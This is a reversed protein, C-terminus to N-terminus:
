VEEEEAIEFDVPVRLGNRATTPVYLPLTSGDPYEVFSELTTSTGDLAFEIARYSGAPLARSSVLTESEGGTLQLVDIRQVPDLEVAQRKGDEQGCFVSRFEGVSPVADDVPADADFLTIRGDDGGAVILAAAICISKWKMMNIWTCSPKF